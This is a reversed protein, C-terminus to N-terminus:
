DLTVDIDILIDLPCGGCFGSNGGLGTSPVVPFLRWVFEIQCVDVLIGIGTVSNGHGNYRSVTPRFAM